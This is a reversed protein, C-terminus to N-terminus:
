RMVSFRPDSCLPKLPDRHHPSVSLGVSPALCAGGEAQREVEADLGYSELLAPEQVLVCTTVVALGESWVM